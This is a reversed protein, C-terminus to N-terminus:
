GQVELCARLARANGRMLEFYLESGEALDSGLPDLAATRAGTGATLTRILKPEFQPETFVCVGSRSRLLRRIEAVRATGPPVEPNVTLIGAPALGYRAELHGYADHFVVYARGALPRLLRDLEADLDALRAQLRAANAAYRSANELDARTLEAAIVRVMAAANLPDLWVHPNGGDHEHAEDKASGPAGAGAARHGNRRTIGAVEGLAVVRARSALTPLADELFVELTPGIWFVVAAQELSRADSPRLAYTHPSAAGKLLVQPQGVGEMVGAVLSHVPRISALVPPGEGAAPPAAWFSCTLGALLLALTRVDSRLRTM